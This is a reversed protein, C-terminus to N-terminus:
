KLQKNFFSQIRNIHDWDVFRLGVGMDDTGSMIHFEFHGMNKGFLFLSTKKDFAQIRGRNLFTQVKSFGIFNQIVILNKNTFAYGQYRYDLWRFILIIGIILLLALGLWELFYFSLPIVILSFLLIWRWFYLLKGRGVLNIEPTKSIYTPFIRTLAPYMRKSNILPLLLLKNEIDSEGKTEQGGIIIVEVSSMGIFKRLVQQYVKIGQVKNLPIKQTKREFLGYEITLTKRTCTVSFEFYYFFSKVISITILLIFSSMLLVLVVIWVAQALLHDIGIFVAEPILDLVFNFETLIEGMFVLLPILLLFINLDTIAFLLIDKHSMRYKYIIEQDTKSKSKNQLTNKLLPYDM